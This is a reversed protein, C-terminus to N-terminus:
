IWGLGRSMVLGIVAPLVIRMSWHWLVGAVAGALDAAGRAATERWAWGVLLAIAIGSLPLLIDSAVHDLYDLLPVGSSHVPALVGYSLAVPVGIALALGGIAMTARTRRWRWRAIAWAVPVELLAVSSTLAAITLLLFFAIAFWRGAPM